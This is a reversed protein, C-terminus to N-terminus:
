YMRWDATEAVNGGSTFAKVTHIVSDGGSMTAVHSPGDSSPEWSATIHVAEAKLDHQISLKATQEEDDFFVISVFARTEGTSWDIASVLSNVDNSSAFELTQAANMNRGFREGVQSRVTFTGSRSTDCGISLLFLLLLPAKM